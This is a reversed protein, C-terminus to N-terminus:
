GFILQKIYEVVEHLEDYDRIAPDAIVRNWMTAIGALLAFVVVSVILGAVATGTGRTSGRLGAIAIVAGAATIIAPLFGIYPILLFIPASLFAVGALVLSLIGSSTASKGATAPYPQNNQHIHVHPHDPASM